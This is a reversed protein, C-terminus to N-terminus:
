EAARNMAACTGGAPQPNCREGSAFEFEGAEDDVPLCVRLDGRQEEEALLGDLRVERVDVALDADGRTDFECARDFACSAALSQRPLALQLRCEVSRGAVPEPGRLTSRALGDRVDAM